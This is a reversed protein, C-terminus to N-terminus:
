NDVRRNWIEEPHERWEQEVFEAIKQMKGAWPNSTRLFDQLIVLVSYAEHEFFIPVPKGERRQKRAIAIMYRHFLESMSIAKLQQERLEARTPFAM